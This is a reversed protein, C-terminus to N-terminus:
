VTLAGSDCKIGLQYQCNIVILYTYDEIIDFRDLLYPIFLVTLCALDLNMCLHAHM